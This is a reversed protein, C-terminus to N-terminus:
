GAASIQAGVARPKETEKRFADAWRQLMGDRRTPAALELTRPQTRFEYKDITCVATGIGSRLVRGFVIVRMACSQNLLVPWSISMEIFAGPRLYQDVEIAVGNSCIDVTKGSGFAVITDQELLKYRMERCIPFRQKKRRDTKKNDTGM